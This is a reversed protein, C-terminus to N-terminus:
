TCGKKYQARWAREPNMMALVTNHQTQMSCVCQSHTLTCDSYCQTSGPDKIASCSSVYLSQKLASADNCQASCKPVPSTLASFFSAQTALVQEISSAPHCGWRQSSLGEMSRAFDGLADAMMHLATWTMCLSSGM